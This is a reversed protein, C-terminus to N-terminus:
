ERAMVIAINPVKSIGVTVKSVSDAIEKTGPPCNAIMKYITMLKHDTSKDTRM